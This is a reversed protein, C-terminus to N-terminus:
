KGAGFKREFADAVSTLHKSRLWEGIEARVIQEAEAIKGEYYEHDADRQAELLPVVCISISRKNFLGDFINARISAKVKKLIPAKEINVELRREKIQEDTPQKNNM